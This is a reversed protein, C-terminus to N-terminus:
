TYKVDITDEILDAIGQNGYIYLKFNARYTGKGNVPISGAIDGWTETCYGRWEEGVDTWFLGLTKKEITIRLEAQLFTEERAVYTAVFHAEGNTVTFSMTTTDCNVWCPSIGEDNAYTPLMYLCLILGILLMALLVMFFRKM